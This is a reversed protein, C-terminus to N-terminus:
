RGFTVTWLSVGRRRGAATQRTRRTAAWTPRTSWLRAPPNVTPFDTSGAFGAVYASGASDVAIGFGQDISSGGLYTLYVLSPDIILTKSHDYIGLVFRVQHSATLVFRGQTMIRQSNATLQYVVPKNFRIAGGGIKVVLDGDAGIRVPARRERALGSRDEAVTFRIASPDAGPAVM